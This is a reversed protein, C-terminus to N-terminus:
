GFISCMKGSRAKNIYNDLSTKSETAKNSLTPYKGVVNKMMSVFQSSLGDLAQSIEGEQENIVRRVIRTLDSETLRIVRKM